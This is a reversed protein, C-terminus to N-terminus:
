AFDMGFATEVVVPIQREAVSDDYLTSAYKRGTFTAQVFGDKMDLEIEEIRIPLNVVGSGADTIAVVDGEELLLAERDATWSYFFDADLNETLLGSAIRYAQNYSDIASGNVTLKNEKKVKAINEENKLNLTVLRFDQTPDRYTLEVFNKNQKRNGLRWKFSAKIVNSREAQAREVARDTFASSVRIVECGTSNFGAPIPQNRSPLNTIDFSSGDNEQVLRLEWGDALTSCYWRVTEADAPLTEADVTIKQNATVVVSGRSSLLTEGRNNTYSYALYITGAPLAGGSGATGTPATSPDALPALHPETLAEDLTLTGKNLYIGVDTYAAGTKLGVAHFKQSLTPHGNIANVIWLVVVEDDDDSGALFEVKIGDLSFDSNITSGGFLLPTLKGMQRTTSGNGGTFATATINTGGSLSPTDLSYATSVLGRIESDSTNPDILLLGSTDGAFPYINNLTISSGSLAGSARGNDVPKKHRLKLRGEEDQSFFMRSAPFIVEHIFDTVKVRDTIICNSTYRRRLYFNLYNTQGEPYDDPEGDGDIAGATTYEVKWPTRNFADNLTADGLRYRNWAMGARSTSGLYKGFATNGDTFTASNPVQLLESGSFDYIIEDNYAAAEEFSDDNLWNENLNFYDSNTLLFRAHAAPNDTWGDTVFASSPTPMLQGYIVAVIGPAPDDELTDTGSMVTFLLATKSYYGNAIFPAYSQPVQGNTNGAYGYRKQYGNMMTVTTDNYFQFRQDDTRIWQFDEIPGECFATTTRIFRGVDVYGLHMGMMQARGLVVPVWRNQDIDSYSSFSQYRGVNRHFFMGLAGLGAIAWWNRKRVAYEVTGYQPTYRFGEFLVDNTARGEPDDVKFQRRPMEVEIAGVIQNAQVSMSKRNATLPRDCRGVFLILSKDLADSQSRSVLRLVMIKGEFGETLEYNAITLDQNSFEVSCTNIENSITRKARNYTVVLKDYDQGLFSFHGISALRLEADTPDFPPAADQNYIECVVDFDTGTTLVTKLDNNIIM